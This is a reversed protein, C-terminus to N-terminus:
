FTGYKLGLWAIRSISLRQVFPSCPVSPWGGFAHVPVVIAPPVIRDSRCEGMHSASNDHLLPFVLDKGAVPVGGLYYHDHILGSFFPPFQYRNNGDGIRM